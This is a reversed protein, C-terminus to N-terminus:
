ETTVVLKTDKKEQIPAQVLVYSTGKSKGYFYSIGLLLALTGAPVLYPSVDKRKSEFKQKFDAYTYSM